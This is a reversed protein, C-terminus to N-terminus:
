EADVVCQKGELQSRLEGERLSRCILLVVMLIMVVMVLVLVLVILWLQRVVVLQTVQDIRVGVVLMRTNHSRDRNLVLILLLLLRGQFPHSTSNIAKPWELKSIFTRRTHM